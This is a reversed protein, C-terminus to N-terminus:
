EKRGIELWVLQTTDWLLNLISNKKFTMTGNLVVNGMSVITLTNDDHAGILLLEQSEVSGNQIPLATDAVQAGAAGQVSKRMRQDTTVTIMGGSAISQLSLKTYQGGGPTISYLLNAEIEQLMMVIRDVTKEHDKAKFPGTAIYSAIQTRATARWVTIQEDTTPASYFVVATAPNGGSLYYDTGEILTTDALAVLDTSKVRVQTNELFDFPIPFSVTAGNGTYVGQVTTNTLSM